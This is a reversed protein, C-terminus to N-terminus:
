GPATPQLTHDARERRMYIGALARLKRYVLPMSEGAADADDKAHALLVAAVDDRSDNVTREGGTGVPLIARPRFQVGIRTSKGWEGPKM